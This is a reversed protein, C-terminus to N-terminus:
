TAPALDERDIRRRMADPDDRTERRWQRVGGTRREAPPEVDEAAPAVSRGRLARRDPDEVRRSAGDPARAPQRDGQGVEGGCGDMAADEDRAPAIGAPGDM